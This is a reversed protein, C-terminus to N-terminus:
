IVEECTVHEHSIDQYSNTCWIHRLNLNEGYIFYEIEPHGSGGIIWYWGEAFPLGDNEIKIWEM